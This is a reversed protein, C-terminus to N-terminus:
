RDFRFARPLCSSRPHALSINPSPPFLLVDRVGLTSSLIASSDSGLPHSVGFDRGGDYQEVGADDFGADRADM